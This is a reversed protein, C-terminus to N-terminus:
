LVFAANAAAVAFALGVVQVEAVVLELGDDAVDVHEVGAILLVVVVVALADDLIEVDVIAVDDVITSMEADDVFPVTEAGDVACLVAAGVVVGENKAVVICDEFLDFACSVAVFDVFASCTVSADVLRQKMDGVLWEVSAVTKHEMLGGALGSACALDLQVEEDGAM